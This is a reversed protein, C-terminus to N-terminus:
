ASQIEIRRPQAKAVIPLEITVVGDRLTATIREADINEGIAFHREYNGVGYERRLVGASPLRPHIKGRLKLTGEEFQIELQDPAVGPLDGQLIVRDDSQWVDFAPLYTNQKPVAKCQDTTAVPAQTTTSM